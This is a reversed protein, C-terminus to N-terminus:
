SRGHERNRRRIAADLDALSQAPTSFSYSRQGKTTHRHDGKGSENDYRLVCEGEVVYALRYKFRHKSPSLPSPVRWVVIEVFADLAVVTRRRLLPVARM